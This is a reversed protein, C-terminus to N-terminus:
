RKISDSKLSVRYKEPSLGFARKFFRSLNNPESFNFEDSIENISKDTYVLENKIEQSLRHLIFAKPGMKFHNKVLTNLKSRSVKLRDSYFLVDHQKKIHNELTFLFEFFVSEGYGESPLRYNWEFDENLKVLLYYLLARIIHQNNKGFSTIESHIKKLIIEVFVFDDSTLTIYPKILPNHFYRLKYVFLKDQFFNALFENKFILHFGKLDKTNISCIKRQYPTTFFVSNYTIGIKHNDIEFYGDNCKEFLFIEYFNTTHIEDIFYDKPPDNLCTLDMALDFGYKEKDFTLHSM